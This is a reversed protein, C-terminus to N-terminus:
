VHMEVVESDAAPDKHGDLVINVTRGDGQNKNAYRQPYMHELAWTTAGEKGMHKQKEIISNLTSLLGFEHQKRVRSWELQWEVTDDAVAMQDNTLGAYVYADHLDMGVLLANYINDKQESTLVM